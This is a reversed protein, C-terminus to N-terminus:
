NFTAYLAYHQCLTTKVDTELSEDGNYNAEPSMVEFHKILSSFGIKFFFHQTMKNAMGNEPIERCCNPFVQLLTVVMKPSHIDKKTFM